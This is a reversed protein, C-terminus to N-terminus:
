TFKWLIILVVAYLRLSEVCLRLLRWCGADILWLTVSTKTGFNFYERDCHLSCPTKTTVLCLRVAGVGASITTFFCFCISIFCLFIKIREIRYLIILKQIWPVFACVKVTTIETLVIGCFNNFQQLGNIRRFIWLFHSYRILRIELHHHNLNIPNRVFSAPLWCRYNQLKQVDTCGCAGMSVWSCMDTGMLVNISMTNQMTWFNQLFTYMLTFVYVIHVVQWSSVNVCM